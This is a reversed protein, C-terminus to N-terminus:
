IELLKARVGELAGLSSLMREIEARDPALELIILGQNSCVDGTEHLGLRMRVICGFETLISQLKAAQERRKDVRIAAIFFSEM